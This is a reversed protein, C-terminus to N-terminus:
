HKDAFVAQIEAAIAEETEGFSIIFVHGPMGIEDGSIRIPKGEQLREMNVRSLGFIHTNGIQAKVM